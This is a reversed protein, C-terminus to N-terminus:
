VRGAAERAALQLTFVTGAGPSSEVTLDGNMLRALHRSIALGLGTGGRVRTASNDAQTFPEFLQTLFEPTMGIGTDRVALDVRGGAARVATMRIEGRSTFRAANGLLNLLCQSLRLRDAIVELSSDDCELTLHNGNNRALPVTVAFVEQLVPLVAVAEMRVSLRGAEIKSYDLIDSIVNLLHRGAARIKDLDRTMDALGQREADESLMESYGIIANLPTRLEHSMTALFVGKCRASEEADRRAQELASNQEELRKRAFELDVLLEAAYANADSVSELTDHLRAVQATLDSSSPPTTALTSM